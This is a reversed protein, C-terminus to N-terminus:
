RGQPLGHAVHRSELCALSRDVGGDRIRIRQPEVVSSASRSPPAEQAPLETLEAGLLEQREILWSTLNFVGETGCADM